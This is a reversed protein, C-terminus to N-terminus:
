VGKFQQKDFEPCNEERDEKRWHQLQLVHRVQQVFHEQDEGIVAQAHGETLEILVVFEERKAGGIKDCFGHALFKTLSAKTLTGIANLRM